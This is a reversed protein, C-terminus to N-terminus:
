EVAIGELFVDAEKRSHFVTIDKFDKYQEVLEYIAPIQDRPFDLIYKRFEPDFENEIWPLDERKQGIRSAAGDLCEEVPLDFFFVKTCKEFRQPLTRQYNGDIIWEETKLIESLRVDFEDSSVTTRDPKHFIMDLYYLPLGTKDKLKRSFTSKGAGPSGIVLIRECERKLNKKLMIVEATRYEETFGAKLFLGISPNDSAIDDWLVDIGNHAAERCLLRLGESGYGRGRLESSVIVDALWMDREEDYHYAIEGVFRGAAPDKLYRYFRKNEHHLLWRDYWGPWENEPFLITGGFAHNYSMTEPDSLLCERFWLDKIEPKYLIIM